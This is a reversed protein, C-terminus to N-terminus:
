KINKGMQKQLVKYFFFFGPGWCTQRSALDTRPRPRPMVRGSHVVFLSRFSIGSGVAFFFKENVKAVAPLTVRIILFKFFVVAIPTSSIGVWTQFFPTTTSAPGIARTQLM